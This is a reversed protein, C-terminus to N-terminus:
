LSKVVATCLLDDTQPSRWVVIQSCTLYQSPAACKVEVASSAWVTFRLLMLFFTVNCVSLITIQTKQLGVHDPPVM